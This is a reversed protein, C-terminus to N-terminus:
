RCKFQISDSGAVAQDYHAVLPYPCYLYRGPTLASAEKNDKTIGASVPGPAAGKEVWAVLPTFFDFDDYSPGGAGHPMGPIRYFKVFDGAKRGNNSDLKRYWKVTDLVSFVPDANGHFVIMKHGAAKFAKLHPNASDPPIMFDAASETFPGSKAFIKPADRDFDFDLLFKQLDEPTGNVPVPPTTFIQALSGAGMVAIIPKGGWAAVPSQLKWLRWNASGMGPDWDWNSYLAHGKSNKPGAHSARLAAIQDQSLCDQQKEAKCALSALNFRSQCADANGVVGDVRGDLADCASLIGKALIAMDAPSFAKAIDQDVKAWSQVDWAHQLAAKPLNFGPYGVLLGDFQEPLRTAAMLAHRGGNSGGIGYRFAIKQGYYQEVLRMALPNLKAVASYGYDQRAIPDFGFAASGALGKDSFAAEDHGADSSVVAYGRSLANDAKNGGLLPGTAALVKGDNGGNFQHVFRGNWDDPLRMEFHIAYARGDIGQHAALEGQILCHNRPMEANGPVSKAETITLEPPHGGSNSIDGCTVAAYAGAAYMFSPFILATFVASRVAFISM